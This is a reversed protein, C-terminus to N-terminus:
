HSMPLFRQYLRQYQNGSAIVFRIGHAKLRQYTDLFQWAFQKNSDLFTGDMDTAILKIM